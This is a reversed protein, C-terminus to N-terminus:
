VPFREDRNEGTLRETVEDPEYLVRLLAQWSTKFIARSFGSRACAIRNLLFLRNTLVIMLFLADCSGTVRWVRVDRENALEYLSHVLQM